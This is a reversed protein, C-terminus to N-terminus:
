CQSEEETTHQKRAAEEGYKGASREGTLTLLAHMVEPLHHRVDGVREDEHEPPPCFCLSLPVPLSSSNLPTSPLSPPPPPPPPPLPPPPPTTTSPVCAHDSNTTAAKM